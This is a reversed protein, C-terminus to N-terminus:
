LILLIYFFDMFTIKAWFAHEVWFVIIGDFHGNYVKKKKIYSMVSKTCLYIYKFLVFNSLFFTLDCIFFIYIYIYIYSFNLSIKLKHFMKSM